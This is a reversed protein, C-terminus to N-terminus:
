KLFFVDGKKPNFRFHYRRLFSVANAISDQHMSRNNSIIIVFRGATRLPAGNKDTIGHPDTIIYCTDAFKGGASGVYVKGTRNSALASACREAALSDKMIVYMPTDDLLTIIPRPDFRTMALKYTIYGANGIFWLGVGIAAIRAITRFLKKRGLMGVFSLPVLFISTGAFFAAFFFMGAVPGSLTFSRSLALLFPPCVNLGTVIGLLLPWEAFRSWKSPRCNGECGRSRLASVILFGSFLLYATITFYDRQLDAFQRGFAGAIAGVLLYTIFRGASLELLTTVYRLTTRNKVMLFPAYVPGCTALCVPGTAIGLAFGEALFHFPEVM